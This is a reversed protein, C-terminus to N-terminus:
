RQEYDDGKNNYSMIDQLAYEKCRNCIGHSIVPLGQEQLAIAFKNPAAEFEKIFCGCYSCRVQYIM